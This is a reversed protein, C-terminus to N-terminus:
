QIIIEDCNVLDNCISMSKMRFMVCSHCYIKKIESFMFSIYPLTIQKYAVYYGNTFFPSNKNRPLITDDWPKKVKFEKEVGQELKVKEELDNGIFIIDNDYIIM